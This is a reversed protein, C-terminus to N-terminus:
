LHEPHTQQLKAVIDRVHQAEHEPCVLIADDAVVVVLGHVGLVCVVADPNDNYIVSGSSRLALAKGHLMNGVHDVPMTRSLADYTGVDDWEFGALAVYVNPSKELLAYDISINPLGAFQRDAEAVEGSALNSAVAMMVAYASPAVARM